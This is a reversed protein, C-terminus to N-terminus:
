VEPALAHQELVAIVVGKLDRNERLREIAVEQLRRLAADRTEKGHGKVYRLSTQASEHGLEEIAGLIIPLRMCVEVVVQDKSLGRAMMDEGVIAVSQQFGIGLANAAHRIMTRVNPDAAAQVVASAAGIAGISLGIVEARTLKKKNRANAKRKPPKKKAM